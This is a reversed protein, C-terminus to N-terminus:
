KPLMMFWWGRGGLKSKESWINASQEQKEGEEYSQEESHLKMRWFLHINEFLRNWGWSHFPALAPLLIQSSSDTSRFQFVSFSHLFFLVYSPTFSAVTILEPDSVSLQQLDTFGWNLSLLSCRNRFSSNAHNSQNETIVGWCKIVLGWYFKHSWM